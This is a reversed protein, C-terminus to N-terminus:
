QDQDNGGFGAIGGTPQSDSQRPPLHCRPLRLPLQFKRLAEQHLSTGAGDLGWAFLPRSPTADDKRASLAAREIPPSLDKNTIPDAHIAAFATGTQERMLQALLLAM